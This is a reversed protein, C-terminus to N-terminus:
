DTQLSASLLVAAYAIEGAGVFLVLHLWHHGLQGISDQIFYARHVVVFMVAALMVIMAQALIFVRPSTLADAIEGWSYEDMYM